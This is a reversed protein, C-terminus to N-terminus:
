EMLYFENIDSWQACRCAPGETRTVCWQFKLVQESEPGVPDRLSMKGWERVMSMEAENRLDVM